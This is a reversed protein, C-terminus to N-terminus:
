GSLVVDLNLAPNSLALRDIKGENEYKAHALFLVLARFLSRTTVTAMGDVAVSVFELAPPHLSALHVYFAGGTQHLATTKSPHVLFYRSSFPQDVNHGQVFASSTIRADMYAGFLSMVLQTDTPLTDNWPRAALRATPHYNLSSSATPAKETGESGAPQPGGSAWSFDAMCTGVSLASIRSVLYSQNSHLRLYPLIYPLTTQVLEPHATMAATIQEVTSTGIRLHLAALDTEFRKNILRIGENLPRLITNVIWNRLRQEARTLENESLLSHSDGRRRRMGGSGSTTGGEGAVGRSPSSSSHASLRRRRGDLPSSSSSSSALAVAAARQAALEVRFKTTDDSGSPSTGGGANTLRPSLHIGGQADYVVDYPDNKNDAADKSMQYPHLELGDLQLMAQYFSSNQNMKEAAADGAAVTAARSKHLLMDVQEQTHISTLMKAAPLSSIKAQFPASSTLDTLLGAGTSSPSAANSTFSSSHSRASSLSLASKNANRGSTGGFQHDDMWSLDPRSPSSAGYLPRYERGRNRLGTPPSQQPTGFITTEPIPFIPSIVGNESRGDGEKRPPTNPPTAGSVAPTSTIIVDRRREEQGRGGRKQEPCVIHYGSLAAWVLSFLLLAVAAMQTVEQGLVGGTALGVLSSGLWFRDFATLALVLTSAVFHGFYREKETNAERQMMEKKLPTNAPELLALRGPSMSATPTSPPMS